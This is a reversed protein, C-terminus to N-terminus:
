CFWVGRGVWERCAGRGGAGRGVVSELGAAPRLIDAIMSDFCDFAQLGALGAGLAAIKALKAAWGQHDALTRTLAELIRFRRDSGTEGARHSVAEALSALTLPLDSSCVDSSWDSIRM